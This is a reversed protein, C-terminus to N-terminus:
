VGWAGWVGTKERQGCCNRTQKQYHPSWGRTTRHRVKSYGFEQLSITEFVSKAASIHYLFSLILISKFLRLWSSATTDARAPKGILESIQVTMKTGMEVTGMQMVYVCTFTGNSEVNITVKNFNL